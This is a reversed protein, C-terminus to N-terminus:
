KKRQTYEDRGAGRLPHAPASLAPSFLRAAGAQPEHRHVASRELPRRRAGGGTVHGVTAGPAGPTQGGSEAERRVPWYGVVLEAVHVPDTADFTSRGGADASASTGGSPPAIDGVADGSVSQRVTL